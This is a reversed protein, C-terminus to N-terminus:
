HLQSSNDENTLATYTTDEIQWTSDQVLARTKTFNDATPNSLVSQGSGTGGSAIFVVGKPTVGAKVLRHLGITDFQSHPSSTANKEWYTERLEPYGKVSRSDNVLTWSTTAAETTKIQPFFAFALGLVLLLVLMISSTKQNIINKKITMREM